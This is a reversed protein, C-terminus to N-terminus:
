NNPRDLILWRMPRPRGESCIAWRDDDSYSALEEIDNPNRSGQSLFRPQFGADLSWQLLDSIWQDFGSVWEHLEVVWTANPFMQVVKETLIKTECGECDILFLTHEDQLEGGLELLSRENCSGMITLRNKFGNEGAVYLLNKHADKMSEFLIIKQLEHSRSLGALYFGDGAGVNVFNKLGSLNLVFDVIEAEYLGLLMAARDHGWYNEALRAGSFPGYRVTASLRGDLKAGIRLRRERSSYTHESDALLKRSVQRLSSALRTRLKQIVRYSM